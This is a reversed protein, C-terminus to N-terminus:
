AIHAYKEGGTEARTDSIGTTGARLCSSPIPSTSRVAKSPPPHSRLEATKWGTRVRPVVKCILARTKVIGRMKRQFPQQVFEPSYMRTASASMVNVRLFEVDDLAPGDLGILGM